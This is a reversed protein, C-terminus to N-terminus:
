NSLSGQGTLKTGSTFNFWQQSVAGAGSILSATGKLAGGALTDQSAQEDLTAQNGYNIGQNQYGISERLANNKITLQDLTGAAATDSQLDVASGSNVDVGNAALAVRQAGIAQATQYAKTQESVDGRAIADQAANDAIRQNNEAVQANYENQKATAAAAQQSAVYSVGAGAVTAVTSGIALAVPLSVSGM